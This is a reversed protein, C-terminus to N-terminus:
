PFAHVEFPVGLLARLVEALVANVKQDDGPPQHLIKAVRNFNVM